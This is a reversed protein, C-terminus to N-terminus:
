MKWENGSKGTSLLQDLLIIPKKQAVVVFPLSLSLMLSTLRVLYECLFKNVGVKKLYKIVSM